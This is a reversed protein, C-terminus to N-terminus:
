WGWVFGATAAVLLSLGALFTPDVVSVVLPVQPYSHDAALHVPWVLVRAYRALVGVATLLRPALPAGAVVNDLRTVPPATAGLVLAGGGGGLAVTAALATGAGGWPGGRGGAARAVIGGLGVSPRASQKWSAP